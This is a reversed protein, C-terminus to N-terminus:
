QYFSAAQRKSDRDHPTREAIGQNLADLLTTKGSGTGGVVLINKHHEIATFLVDAHNSASHLAQEFPDISQLGNLPDDKNTLIGSAAYDYLSPKKEGKKRFSLSATGIPVVPAVLAEVRCNLYPVNGSVVPSNHTAVLGFGEAISMTAGVARLPSIETLVEFPKGQRMIWVRGDPNVVVDEATRDKMLAYVIEPGLETMLKYRKRYESENESDLRPTELIETQAAMLKDGPCSAFGGSFGFLLM